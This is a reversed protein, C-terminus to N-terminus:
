PTAADGARQEWEVSKEAFTSMLAPTFPATRASGALGICSCHPDFVTTVNEEGRSFRLAFSWQSVCDTAPANWQYNVDQLLAHRAHLLGPVAAIEVRQTIRLQTEGIPRDLSM